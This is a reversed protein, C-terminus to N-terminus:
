MKTEFKLIIEEADRPLIAHHKPKKSIEFSLELCFQIMVGNFFIKRESSSVIKKKLQKEWSVMLPVTVSLTELAGTSFRSM